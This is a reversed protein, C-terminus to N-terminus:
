TAHVGAMYRLGLLSHYASRNGLSCQSQATRQQRVHPTSAAVFAHFLKVHLAAEPFCKRINQCLRGARGAALALNLNLNITGLGVTSVVGAACGPVARHGPARQIRGPAARHPRPLRGCQADPRRQGGRAGCIARRGGRSSPVPGRSRACLQVIFWEESSDALDCTANPMCCCQPTAATFWLQQCFDQGSAAQLSM